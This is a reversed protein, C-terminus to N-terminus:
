QLRAILETPLANPDCGFPRLNSGQMAWLSPPLMPQGRGKARSHPALAQTEVVPSRQTCRERLSSSCQALTGARCEGGALHEVGSPCM